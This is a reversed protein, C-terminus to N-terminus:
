GAAQRLPNQPPPIRLRTSLAGLRPPRDAVVPLRAPPPPPLHIAHTNMFAAVRSACHSQKMQVTEASLRSSIGTALHLTPQVNDFSPLHTAPQLLSFSRIPLRTPPPPRSLDHAKGKDEARRQKYQGSGSRLDRPRQVRRRPRLNRRGPRQARAKDGKLYVVLIKSSIGAIGSRGM